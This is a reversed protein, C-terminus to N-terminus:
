AYFAVEGLLTSNSGAGDRVEVVDNIAEIDFDLFHLQINKGEVAHLTWLGAASSWLSNIILTGGLHLLQLHIQASLHM